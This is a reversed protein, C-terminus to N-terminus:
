NGSKQELIEQVKKVIESPTFNAKILYGSAGLEMAKDIEEKQGLNTLMIVPIDKVQDMQKIKELVELGDMKPMVIDLLIVDPRLGENLKKIGVEGDLAVNVEAGESSFKTQYMDSLFVDDEIILVNKNDM